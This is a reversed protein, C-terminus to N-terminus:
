PECADVFLGEPEAEIVDAIEAFTLGSDNLDVLSTNVGERSCQGSSMRLGLATMVHDPLRESIGAYVDGEWGDPDYLNCAVGLCCYRGKYRLRGTGQQYEGSRLAAVWQKAFDNM